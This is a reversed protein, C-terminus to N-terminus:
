GNIVNAKEILWNMTKERTIGTRIRDLAGEKELTARVATPTRGAREAFRGIEASVDDDSAEISERSAIEDLVLTSRVTESAAPRQRERFEEWNIGAKEPDVGQEMLRRVFDELRRALEQEVLVDPATKLRASLEHLLDHRMKHDAEQEAQKQLDERVRTRLADLTDLDSVEKAFDDDIAPLERRRIGKVTVSYDVTAGALEPVGYDAPYITTFTRTDGVSTDTLNEDFGPPNQKAGVEVSVNQLNEPKDDDPHPAPPAGEGPLALLRTRRTRTLDMLITDGTTAPRDEVAHWRAARQQMHEIAHDVAGVELVAPPRRVSIGTYNGPEIPPLTEFDAVFTLPKGEELVVDRIDPTRVPRLGREAIAEGVVRPILDHALDYIIQERYRQKVVSAPAKGPRFGPIRAQRMYDHAIRNIEESVVDPPIEFTINKRTESVETFETKM